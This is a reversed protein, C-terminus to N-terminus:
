QVECVYNATLHTHNILLRQALTKIEKLHISTGKNCIIKGLNISNKIAINTSRAHELLM